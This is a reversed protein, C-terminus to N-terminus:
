AAGRSWRTGHVLFQRPRAALVSLGALVPEPHVVLFTPTRRMVAEFPAKREFEARFGGERMVEAIRPPIGGAVFVGGTAAFMLALDGAFRGLLDAFVRLAEAASEDSGGCGAAVVEAPSRLVPSGGRSRALARDLRVLGAGCLLAEASHRGAPELFPWWAMDREGSPGFEVHGAETAQIVLRRGFPVAAAAGLGTGSGLVVRPGEADLDPGIRLLDERRTELLLELGAAAAAYDNLVTVDDVALDRGLREADITWGANTLHVAPGAVRGAVALLISVPRAGSWRGLASRAASTPDTHAATPAKALLRFPRGPEALLAFRAFTGGIDGLLVPFSTM